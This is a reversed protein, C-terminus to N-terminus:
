LTSDFSQAEEKDLEYTETQKRNIFFHKLLKPMDSAIYNHLNDSTGTQELKAICGNKTEWKFWKISKQLM